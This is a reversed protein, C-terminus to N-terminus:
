VLDFVLRDLAQMLYALYAVQNGGYCYTGSSDGGGLECLSRAIAQYDRDDRYVTFSVPLDEPTVVPPTTVAPTTVLTPVAVTQDPVTVDPVVVPVVPLPLGPVVIPTGAVVCTVFACASVPMLVGTQVPETPGGLTTSYGSLTTGPVLVVIGGIQQGDLVTQSWVLSEGGGVWTIRDQWVPPQAGGSCVYIYSGACGAPVADDASAPSGLAAVALATSAVVTACARLVHKM